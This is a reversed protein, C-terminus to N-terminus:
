IRALTIRALGAPKQVCTTINARFRTFQKHLDESAETVNQVFVSKVSTQVGSKVLRSQDGVLQM